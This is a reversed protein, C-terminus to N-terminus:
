RVELNGTISSNTKEDRGRLCILSRPAGKKQQVRRILLDPDDHENLFEILKTLRNRIKSIMYTVNNRSSSIKKERRAWLDLVTDRDFEKQDTNEYAELVEYSHSFTITM